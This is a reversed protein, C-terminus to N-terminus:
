GTIAPIISTFILIEYLGNDHLCVINKGVTDPTITVNLQSTYNNGEVSLSRGVIAGNNCMGNTGTDFRYHLLIIENSDCYNFASGTWITAGRREMATATCEYSLTDGPCVCGSTLVADIFKSAKSKMPVYVNANLM